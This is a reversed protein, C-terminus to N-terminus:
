SGKLMPDNPGATPFADTARKEILQNHRDV